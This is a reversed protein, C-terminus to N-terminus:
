NTFLESMIKNLEELDSKAVELKRKAKIIAISSFPVAKLSNNLEKTAEAIIKKAALQDGQLNIQAEEVLHEINVSKTKAEDQSLLQKYSQKVLNSM